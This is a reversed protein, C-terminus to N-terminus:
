LREIEKLKDNLPKLLSLPFRVQQDHNNIEDVSKDIAKIYDKNKELLEKYYDKRQKQEKNFQYSISKCGFCAINNRILKGKLDESLEGVEQLSLNLHDIQIKWEINEGKFFSSTFTHFYLSPVSYKRTDLDAWKQKYLYLESPTIHIRWDGEVDDKFILEAAARMEKRLNATEKATKESLRAVDKCDDIIQKFKGKDDLLDLDKVYDKVVQSIENSVFMNKLSAIYQQMGAIMIGHNSYTINPLVDEELWPLIDDQYSMAHYNNGLANKLNEPLSKTDPEKSGDATLYVVHINQNQLKKDPDNWANYWTNFKNNDIGDVTAIYRALQENTDCAGYIKNEIIVHIKDYNIYLDILGNIANKQDTITVINYSSCEPLGLHQLFSNLFTNSKLLYLLVKTHANENANALDFLLFEEKQSHEKYEKILDELEIKM